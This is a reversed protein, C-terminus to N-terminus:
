HLIWQCIKMSLSLLKNNMAPMQQHKNFNSQNTIPFWPRYLIDINQITFPFKLSLKAMWDKHLTHNRRCNAPTEFIRSFFFVFRHNKLRFDLLSHLFMWGKSFSSTKLVPKLPIHRFMQFPSCNIKSKQRFFHLYLSLRIELKRGSFYRRCFQIFPLFTSFLSIIRIKVITLLPILFLLM